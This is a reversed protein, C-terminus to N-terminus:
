VTVEPFSGSVAVILVIIIIIMMIFTIIISYTQWNMMNDIKKTSIQNMIM